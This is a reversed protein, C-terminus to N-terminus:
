KRKDKEKDKMRKIWWEKHKKRYEQKEKFENDQKNVEIKKIETNKNVKIYRNGLWDKDKDVKREERKKEEDKDIKEKDKSKRDKKERKDDNVKM